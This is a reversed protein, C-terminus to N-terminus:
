KTEGKIMKMTLLVTRDTVGDWEIGNYYWKEIAELILPERVFSNKETAELKANLSDQYQKYSWYKNNWFNDGIDWKRSTWDLHRIVNQSPIGHLKMLYQILEKTKARQADTFNLWDSHVEIGISHYNMTDDAINFGGGYGAHFTCKDDDALQRIEGRDGVVYGCSSYRGYKTMNYALYRANNIASATSATHHIMIFKKTNVRGAFYKKTRLSKDFNM